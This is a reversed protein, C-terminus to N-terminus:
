ANKGTIFFLRRAQLIWILMEYGGCGKTLLDGARRGTTSLAMERQQIKLKLGELKILAAWEQVPLILVVQEM